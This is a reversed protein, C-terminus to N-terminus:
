FSLLDSLDSIKEVKVAREVKGLAVISDAPNRDGAADRFFSILFSRVLFSRILFSYIM